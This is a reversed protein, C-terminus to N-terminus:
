LTRNLLDKEFDFLFNEQEQSQIFGPNLQRLRRIAETAALGGEKMMWAALVTGTRGLGALCHIALVEGQEVLRLMRHLLMYIQRMSPVGRDYVPLHLNQLGAAELPAQELDNETLTILTTIGVRALLQLDYEIPNSIGPQPCGALQGPVVWVFGRPARADFANGYEGIEAVIRVGHQSTHLYAPVVKAVPPPPPPTVPPLVVPPPMSVTPPLPVSEPKLESVYPYFDQIAKLAAAPLPPPPAIDEALDEPKADPAPLRVSGTQVFTRIVPNEQEAFFSQMPLHGQIRGGALLIVDSAIARVCTQNHAVILLKQRQGLHQIFDILRHNDADSLGTAPEDVLLLPAPAQAALVMLAIRQWVPDVEVLRQKAKDLLAPIDFGSLWNEIHNRRESQPIASLEPSKLLHNILTDALLRAHQRVLFPRNTGTLPQGCFYANGWQRFRPSGDNFGALSFLLSSKGTGMPGMLVSIGHAPLSFSADAVIVRSGFSFGYGQLELVPALPSSMTRAQIRLKANDTCCWYSGLHLM